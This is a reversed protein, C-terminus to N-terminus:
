DDKLEGQTLMQGNEEMRFWIVGEEHWLEIRVTGEGHHGFQFLARCIPESISGRTVQFGIMAEPATQIALIVEPWCVTCVSKIFSLEAALLQKTEKPKDLERTLYVLNEITNLADEGLLVSGYLNELSRTYIMQELDTM